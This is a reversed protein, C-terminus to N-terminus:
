IKSHCLFVSTLRFVPNLSLYRTDITDIATEAISEPLATLRIPLRECKRTPADQVGGNRLAARIKPRRQAIM